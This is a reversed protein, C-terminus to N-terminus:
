VYTSLRGYWDLRPLHFRFCCGWVGEGLGGGWGGISYLSVVGGFGVARHLFRFCCGKTSSYENRSQNRKPKPQVTGLVSGYRYATSSAFESLVEHTGRTFRSRVLLSGHGFRSRVLLSGHAFWSRVMLSGCPLLAHAM